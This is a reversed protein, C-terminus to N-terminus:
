VLALKPRKSDVKKVEPIDGAPTNWVATFGSEVIRVMGINQWPVFTKHEGYDFSLTARVGEHEMELDPIPVPMDLGYELIVFGRSEGKEDLFAQPPMELDGGPLVCVQVKKATSISAEFVSRKHNNM